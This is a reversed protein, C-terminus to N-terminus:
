FVSNRKFDLRFIYESSVNGGFFDANEITKVIVFGLKQLLRISALNRTDVEATIEILNYNQCLDFILHQCAEHAYGQRWFLPSFLYAIQSSRNPLVTAELQGIYIQLQKHYVAWNLWAESKGSSLRTALKQYRQELVKPSAPPNQPIYQYISEEQLFSFLAIAHKSHLPELSLRETEIIIESNILEM